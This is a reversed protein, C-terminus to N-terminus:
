SQTGPNWVNVNRGRVRNYTNSKILQTEFDQYGYLNGLLTVNTVSTPGGSRGGGLSSVPALRRMQEANFIGEDRHIMYSQGSSMGRGAIDEGTVGGSRYPLYPGGQLVSRVGPVNYADGYKFKIWRIAAIANQVPEWINGGPELWDFTGQAVQMLGSAHGLSRGGSFLETENYANPNNSSEGGAIIELAPLWSQPVGEASIAAMLWNKVQDPTAPIGGGRGGTRGLLNSILGQIGNLDGLKSQLGNILGQMTNVGLGFMVRSPSEIGLARRIVEPIKDVVDEKLWRLMGDVSSKLGNWFANIVAAGIDKLTGRQEDTGNTWGFGTYWRGIFESILGGVWEVVKVGGNWIAEIGAKFGSVISRGIRDFILSPGDAATIGLLETFKSVLGVVYGVIGSLFGSPGEWLAKVGDILGQVIAQGYEYFVTSPSAIGLFEKVKGLFVRIFGWFQDALWGGLADIGAWLGRILADGTDKATQVIETTWTDWQTKFDTAWTQLTRLATGFTDDLFTLFGGWATAAVSKIADWADSLTRKIGDVIPTLRRVIADWTDSVDKSIETWRDSLYRKVADIVDSIKKKVGDVADGVTTKIADWASSILTTIADWITKIVTRMAEFRDSLNDYIKVLDARIDEPIGDWIGILFTKVANWIDTTKDQIGQWATAIGTGISSLASSVAVTIADWAGTLAGKVADWTDSTKQKITDWSRAMNGPLDSIAGWLGRLAGVTATLADSIADTATSTVRRINGWDGVWAATLLGIAIAIAAIILTVPGGLLAVVATIPGSLATFAAGLAITISGTETFIAGILGATEALGGMVTLFPGLVAAVTTVIAAVKGLVLFATFGAVIGAITEKNDRLTQFLENANTLFLEFAPALEDRVKTVLDSLSQILVDPTIGMEALKTQLKDGIAAGLAAGVIAGVPGFAMGGIAGGIAGLIVAGMRQKLQDEFGDALRNALDAGAKKLDEAKIQANPDLPKRTVRQAGPALSFAPLGGKAAAAAKTAAQAAEDIGHKIDALNEKQIQLQEKQATYASLQDQLPKLAAEQQKQIAELMTDFTRAASLSETQLDKVRQQLPELAGKEATKLNRIGDTLPELAAKQDRELGKLRDQLPKLADAEERKISKLRDQLPDLAAKQARDLSKLQDELPKLANEQERKIAKLRDQLPDLASKQDAEIQKLQDQLPKLADQQERKIAKLRDQLPELAAKQAAELTTLQGNLPTLAAEAEAKIAKIKAEIPIEIIRRNADEIERTIKLQAENASQMLEQRTAEVLAGQDIMGDLQKQIQLQQLKITLRAKEAATLAPDSLKAQTDAIDQTISLLDDQVSLGALQGQLQARLAPDGMAKLRLQATAASQLRRQIDEQERLAAIQDRAATIQDQLPKVTAESAKKIADIKSRVADLATSYHDKVTDIQDQVSQAQAAYSEKLSDIKSKIADIATSYRDKITDIQDQVTKTQDSFSEKVADIKDRTAQMAEAYHDKVSDIQDQAAKTQDSFRDKVKDIEDRVSSMAADYRDKVTEIQAQLAGTQAETASQISEMQTKVNAISDQYGQKVTEANEKIEKTQEAFGTKVSDIQTRVARMSRELAKSADDIDRMSDAVDRSASKMGDVAAKVSGVGTTAAQKLQLAFPDGWAKGANEGGKDIDKLPGEKPPSNGILMGALSALGEAVVDIADGFAGAMGSGLQTVLNWGAGFMGEAFANVTDLANQVGAAVSSALSDMAGSVDGQSLKDFVDVIAAGIPALATMLGDFATGIGEMAAAGASAWVKFQDGGLFDGLAVFATTLRAFLPLALNAITDRLADQVNSLAGSFTKAQQSMMDGFNAKSWENFAAIFFDSSIQGQSVLDQLETANKGTKEALIDWVPIGVDILQNLDEKHVITAASMQGLALTMRNIGETGKGFASSVNGVSELQPIVEDAAFGMAMLRQANTVLEPFDFPTRAAFERLNTMMALSQQAGVTMDKFGNVTPALMATFAIRTQELLNNYDIGASKLGGFSVALGQIAVNFAAIGAGQLLGSTLSSAFSDVKQGMDRLASEAERTEAGVTVILRAAEYPM